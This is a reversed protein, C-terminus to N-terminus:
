FRIASRAPVVGPDLTGVVPAQDRPAFVVAAVATAGGIVVVTGLTWIVWSSSKEATLTMHREITADDAVYIESSYPNYGEKRATLTHTGTPIVGEWAGTGVARGDLEITAGVPTAEIRAKGEHRETTLPFTLNLEQKYVVEVKQVPSTYGPARAQFERPGAEVRGRYPAPGREIGDVWITAGPAGTIKVDVIATKLLPELIFSLKAPVGTNVQIPLMQPGFGAKEVSVKHSGIDIPQPGPLPSAGVKDGDVLVAADAENVTVELTSIFHELAALTAQIDHTEQASLKGQGESLEQRFRSAARAYHNLNRECLAMNFLVRPNKSADYAEQFKVLAKGFEPPRLEILLKADDWARQADAPLEERVARTKKAAPPQQATLTSSILLVSLGAGLLDLTRRRMLFSEKAITM